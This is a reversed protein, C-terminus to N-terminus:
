HPADAVMHNRSTGYFLSGKNELLTFIFLSKRWKIYLILFFKALM